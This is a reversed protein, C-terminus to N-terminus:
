ARQMQRYYHALVPISAGDSVATVRLEVVGFDYASTESSPVVVSTAATVTCGATIDAWSGNWDLVEVTNFGSPLCAAYLTLNGSRDYQVDTRTSSTKNVKITGAASLGIQQVSSFSIATCNGGGFWDAASAKGRFARVGTGTVSYSGVTPNTAATTAIFNTGGDADAFTILDSSRSFSSIFADETATTLPGRGFAMYACVYVTATESGSAQAEVGHGRFKFRNAAQADAYALSASYTPLKELNKVYVGPGSSPGEAYAHGTTNGNAL